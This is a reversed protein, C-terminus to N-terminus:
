GVVAAVIHRAISTRTVRARRARTVARARSLSARARALSACSRHSRRASGCRAGLAAARASGGRAGLAAARASGGCGVVVM